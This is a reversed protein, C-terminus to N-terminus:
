RLRRMTDTVDGVISCFPAVHRRRVCRLLARRGCGRVDYTGDDPDPLRYADVDEAACALVDSAAQVALDHHDVCGAAISAFVFLPVSPARFSRM